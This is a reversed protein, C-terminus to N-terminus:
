SFQKRLHKKIQNMYDTSLIALTLEVHKCKKGAAMNLGPDKDSKIAM